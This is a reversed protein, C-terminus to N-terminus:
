AIVETGQALYIAGLEFQLCELQARMDEIQEDLQALRIEKLVAEAADAPVDYFQIRAWEENLGLIADQLISISDEIWSQTM